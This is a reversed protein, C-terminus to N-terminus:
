SESIELAQLANARSAVSLARVSIEDDKDIFADIRDSTIALVGIRGPLPIALVSDYYEGLDQEHIHRPQSDELAQWVISPNGRAKVWSSGRPRNSPAPYKTFSTLVEVMEDNSVEMETRLYLKATFSGGAFIYPCLDVIEKTARNLRDASKDSIELNNLSINTERSNGFIQSDDLCRRITEKDEESLSDFTPLCDSLDEIINREDKDKFDDDYILDFLALQGALRECLNILRIRTVEENLSKLESPVIRVTLGVFILLMLYFTWILIKMQIGVFDFSLVFGLLGGLALLVIEAVKFVAQLQDFRRGGVKQKTDLLLTQYRQLVTSDFEHAVDDSESAGSLIEQVKDGM